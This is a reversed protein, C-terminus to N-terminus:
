DKLDELVERSSKLIDRLVDKKELKDPATIKITEADRTEKIQEIAGDSFKYGYINAFDEVAAYQSAPVVTSGKFWRSGKIRRSADYLEQADSSSGRRPISISLWNAYEGNALRSIWNKCEPEFTGDVAKQRVDANKCDVSFGATLLKNAIDAARDIGSGTRFSLDKKWCYNDSDWCFGAEKVKARFTEDKPYRVEVANDTIVITVIGFQSNEPVIVTDKKEAEKKESVQESTPMAKKRELILPRCEFFIERVSCNRHDIWWRSKDITLVYNMIDEALAIDKAKSNPRCEEIWASIATIKDQRIQVAWNNQKETGRLEPLGNEEAEKMIKAVYEAYEKAECEPCTTYHDVAWEEWNNAETRNNRITTKVFTAGCKECTCTATAKAM